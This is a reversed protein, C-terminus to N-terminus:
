KASEFTESDALYRYEQDISFIAGIGGASDSCRVMVPLCSEPLNRTQIKPAYCLIIGYPPCVAPAAETVMIRYQIICAGSCM